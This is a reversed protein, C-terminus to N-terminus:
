ALVGVAAARWQSNGHTHYTRQMQNTPSPLAMFGTNERGRCGPIDKEALFPTERMTTGIRLVGRDLDLGCQHSKLFDLGLIVDVGATELISFSTPLYDGGICIATAHIKGLIPASGVGQAVGKFRRDCLRMLGTRQACDVTMITMQAGTDVFAKIPHNNVCCNVYLMNVKGFVEPNYEMALEFNSEANQQDITAQIKEQQQFFQSVGMSGGQGLARGDGSFADFRGMATALSGGKGAKVKALNSHPIGTHTGVGVGVGGTRKSGFGSIENDFRWSNQYSQYAPGSTQYPQPMAHTWYNAYTAMNPSPPSLIVLRLPDDEKIGSDSLSTDDGLHTNETTFLAQCSVPVGLQAELQEKVARITADKDMHLCCVDGYETFVSLRAINNPTPTRLRGSIEAASLQEQLGAAVVQDPALCSIDQNMAQYQAQRSAFEQATEVWVWDGEGVGYQSLSYGELLRMGCKNWLVQRDVSIGLVAEIGGMVCSVSKADSTLNLFRRSGDSSIIVIRMPVETTAVRM